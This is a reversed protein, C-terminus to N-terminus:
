RFWVDVVDVVPRYGIRAYIANSVPNELVTYLVCFRRGDDLLRQSLAAVTATAYGHNRFAPPTYVYGIRAGSPTRAVDSAMSRPEGHEWLYVAGEGVLRGSYVASDFDEMGSGRAFGAGWDVVLPLDAAEARRLVGPPRARPSLVRELAHIRQQTGLSWQAGRARTWCRAFESSEAEPGMLGSIESYVDAVDRALSPVSAIPLRTIGLKSPPTRWACGVLEGEAEITALYIPSAWRHDGRLLRDSIGLLLNHEAERQVLWREARDLFSRPDSWRRIQYRPDDPM